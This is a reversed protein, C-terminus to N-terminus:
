LAAYEPNFHPLEPPAFLVEWGKKTLRQWHGRTILSSTPDRGSLLTFHRMIDLLNGEKAGGGALNVKYIATFRVHDPVYFSKPLTRSLEAYRIHSYIKLIDPQKPFGEKSDRILAGFIEGDKVGRNEDQVELVIRHRDTGEVGARLTAFRFTNSPYFLTKGLWFSHHSNFIKLFEVESGRISISSIGVLAFGAVLKKM